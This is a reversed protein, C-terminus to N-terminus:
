AVISKARAVLASRFEDSTDGLQKLADLYADLQEQSPREGGRQFDFVLQNTHALASTFISFPGDLDPFHIAILMKARDFDLGKQGELNKLQADLFSSRDVQGRLYPLHIFANGIVGKSYQEFSLFLEEAKLRLYARDSNSVSLKHSVIAAVVGSAAITLLALAINGAVFWSFEM